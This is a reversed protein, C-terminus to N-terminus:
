PRRRDLDRDLLERRLIKVSEPATICLRVKPRGRPKARHIEHVLIVIEEGIVIEQGEYRSLVLM